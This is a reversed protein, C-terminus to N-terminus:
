PQGWARQPEFHLSGVATAAGFQRVEFDAVSGTVACVIEAPPDPETFSLARLACAAMRWGPAAARHLAAQRVAEILVMGPVHDSFHDYFFPHFPDAPVLRIRDDSDLGILLDQHRALGLLTPDATAPRTLHVAPTPTKSTQSEPSLSQLPMASIGCRRSRVAAYAAPPLFRAIGDAQAFERGEAHYRVTLRLRQVMGASGAQLVDVLVGCTLESGGYGARPEAAADLSFALEEILFRAGPPVPYFQAPICIGLQRMTEAVLLPNHRGDGARDFTPHSRAWQAAATFTHERDPRVDTLLVEALATRHVLDRALLTSRNLARTELIPSFNM